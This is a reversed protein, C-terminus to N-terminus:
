EECEGRVCSIGRNTEVMLLPFQQSIVLKLKSIFSQIQPPLPTPFYFQFLDQLQSPDQSRISQILRQFYLPVIDQPPNM